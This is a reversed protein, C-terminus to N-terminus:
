ECRLGREPDEACTYTRAEKCGVLKIRHAMRGRETMPSEEAIAISAPKCAHQQTFLDYAAKRSSQTLRERAPDPACRPEGSDVDVECVLEQVHAREGCRAIAGTTFRLGPGPSVRVAPEIACGPYARTAHDRAQARMVEDRRRAAEEDPKIVHCSMARARLASAECLVEAEGACGAARWRQTWVGRRPYDIASATLQPTADPACAAREYYLKTASQLGSMLAEPLPDQLACQGAHRGDPTLACTIPLRRGCGSLVLETVGLDARPGGSADQLLITDCPAERQVLDLAEELAAATADVLPAAACPPRIAAASSPCTYRRAHGCGTVVTRLKGDGEAPGFVPTMLDDFAAQSRDLPCNTDRWFLARAVRDSNHASHAPDAERTCVQENVVGYYLATRSHCGYALRLGGCTTDHKARYLPATQPDCDLIDAAQAPPPAQTYRLAPDDPTACACCLLLALCAALRVPM